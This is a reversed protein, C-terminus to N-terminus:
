SAQKNYKCRLYEYVNWNHGTELDLVIQFLFDFLFYGLHKLQATPFVVACALFRVQTQTRDRSSLVFCNPMELGPLRLM